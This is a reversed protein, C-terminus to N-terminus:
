KIKHQIFLSLSNICVTVSSCAMLVSCIMPSLTFGLFSFAGAAVPIFIINYFIAWFLNFNINRRIRKSIKIIDLTSILNDNLLIFDSSALAIDTAKAVGIGVESRKLAIADNVGDGMMVVKYGEDQLRKIYNDKENPLVESIVEEIGVEKAISEAIKKNDGSLLVIKKFYKKAEEIFSISEPKLQDKLSFIAFVKKDDFAIIPLFGKDLEEAIIKSYENYINIFKEKLYAYNGVYLNHNKFKGFVGKGPEIGNNIFDNSIKSDSLYSVIANALPHSSFSELTLIEDLIQPTKEFFLCKQVKLSGTTITNTKDLVLCNTLKINEIAESNNVLIGKGSFISSGVMLSIPTALGLACPCSIVVVSIMFSFAKDFSHLPDITIWLIFTLIALIIVAPCFYLAVKDIKNTLKTNMNGAEMVMSIIKSLTSDSYDKTIHIKLTSDLNISGSIVSDDEKKFIPLSEGTLVSEDVSSNGNLVIGDGPISEGANVIVIDNKKLFKSEIDFITNDKYLHAIKPKLNVLKQLSKQAKRKSLNEILKGITVIVLIMASADYYLHMHSYHMPLPPNITHTITLYLSYAYSLSSGIFILSYMTPKLRILSLLGSKFYEFFLIIILTAFGFQIWEGVYIPTKVFEPIVSPYMSGMGLYMLPILLIIGLIIKIIIEKVKISNNFLDFDQLEKVNYGITKCAKIIEESPIDKKTIVKISSTVVNAEVSVVNNLKNIANEINAKCAACHMNSCQFLKEM